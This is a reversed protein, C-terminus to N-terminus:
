IWIYSNIKMGKLYKMSGTSRRRFKLRTALFYHDEIKEPPLESCKEIAEEIEFRAPDIEYRGEFDIMYRGDMQAELEIGNEFFEEEGVIEELDLPMDRM